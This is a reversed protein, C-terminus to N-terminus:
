SILVTIGHLFFTNASNLANPNKDCKNNYVNQIMM